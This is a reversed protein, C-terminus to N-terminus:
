ELKWRLIGRTQSVASVSLDVRYCSPFSRYVNQVQTMAVMERIERVGAGSPGLCLGTLSKTRHSRITPGNKVMAERIFRRVVEVALLFRGAFM